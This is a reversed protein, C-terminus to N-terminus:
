NAESDDCKILSCVPAPTLIIHFDIEKSHPQSWRGMRRVQGESVRRVIYLQFVVMSSVLEIIM